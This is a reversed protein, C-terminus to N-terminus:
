FILFSFRKTNKTKSTGNPVVGVKDFNLNKYLISLELQRSDGHLKVLKCDVVIKMGSASELNIRNETLEM